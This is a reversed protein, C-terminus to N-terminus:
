DMFKRIHTKAFQTKIKINFKTRKNLIIDYQTFIKDLEPINNKFKFVRRYHVFGIYKSSIKKKNYKKWIYYIKSGECYGIRKQFM